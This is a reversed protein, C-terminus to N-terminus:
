PAEGPPAEVRPEIHLFDYHPHEVAPRAERELDAVLDVAVERALDEVGDDRAVHAQGFRRAVALRDHEVIEPRAARERVEIECPLDQGMFLRPSPRPRPARSEEVGPSPSSPSM